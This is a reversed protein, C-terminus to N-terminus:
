LIEEIMSLLETGSIDDEDSPEPEPEPEVEPQLVELLENYTKESIEIIQPNDIVVPYDYTLLGVLNDEEDLEKFYRIAM